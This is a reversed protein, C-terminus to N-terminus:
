AVVRGCDFSDEHVAWELQAALANEMMKGQRHAERIGERASESCGYRELLDEYREELSVCRDHRIRKDAYIVFFPLSCIDAGQPLPWPWWVHMM